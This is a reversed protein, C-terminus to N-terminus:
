TTQLSYSLLWDDWLSLLPFATLVGTPFLAAKCSSDSLCREASLSPAPGDESLGAETLRHGRDCLWVCVQSVVEDM